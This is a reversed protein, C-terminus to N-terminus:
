STVNLLLSLNYHLNVSVGRKLYRPYFFSRTYVWIVYTPNNYVTYVVQSENCTPAQKAAPLGRNSQGLVTEFMPLSQENALFKANSTFTVPRKTVVTFIIFVRVEVTALAM